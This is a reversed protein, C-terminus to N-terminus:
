SLGEPIDVIRSRLWEGLAKAQPDFRASSAVGDGLLGEISSISRAFIPSSTGSSRTPGGDGSPAPAARRRHARARAVAMGRRHAGLRRRQRRRGQRREQRRRRHRAAGRAENAVAVGAAPRRPTRRPHPSCQPSVSAPIAVRTGDPLGRRARRRRGPVFGARYVGVPSADSPPATLHFGPYSALAIEVAAASFARGVVDPDPDRVTCHLFASAEEEVASDAHDTRALSWRVQAPPRGSLAATWRSACSRQRPMSTSVASCSSSRTATGPSPTAACRSRPPHHSVALTRECPGSGPRRCALTITDFRTVVDPGLYRPAGIEYLLQATM